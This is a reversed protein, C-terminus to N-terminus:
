GNYDPHSGWGNYNNVDYKWSDPDSLQYLTQTWLPKPICAGNLAKYYLDNYGNVGWEDYTPCQHGSFRTPTEYAFSRGSAAGAGSDASSDPVALRFARTVSQVYADSGHTCTVSYATKSGEREAAICTDTNEPLDTTGEYKAAFVVAATEAIGFNEAKKQAIAPQISMNVVMPLASGMVSVGVVTSLINM